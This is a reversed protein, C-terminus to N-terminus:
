NDVLIIGDLSTQLLTLNRVKLAALEIEARELSRAVEHLELKDEFDDGYVEDINTTKNPLNM